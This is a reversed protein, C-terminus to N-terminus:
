VTLFNAAAFHEVAQEGEVMGAVGLLHALAQAVLPHLLARRLPLPPPSDPRM